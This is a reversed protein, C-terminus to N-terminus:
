ERPPNGPVRQDDHLAAARRGGAGPVRRGRLVSTRNEEVLVGRSRVRVVAAGDDNPAFVSAGRPPGEGSAATRDRGSGPGGRSGPRFVGPSGEAVVRGAVAAAPVVPRARVAPLDERRCEILSSRGQRDNE